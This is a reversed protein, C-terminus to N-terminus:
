PRDEAHHDCCFDQMGKGAAQKPRREGGDTETQDAMLQQAHPESAVCAIQREAVGDRGAGHACHSVVERILRDEEEGGREGNRSKQRKRM